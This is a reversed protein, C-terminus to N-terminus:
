TRKKYDLFTRNSEKKPDFHFVGFFFQVLYGSVTITFITGVGFTGGLLFGILLVTFEIAPKVYKVDIKTIRSLGVFLGDRPGPGLKTSIYLARGMTMLLVGTLILLIRFALDDTEIIIYQNMKDIIFGVLLINLLTGPGIKTKLLVVSLVLIILGVIQITVGFSIGSTKSIGEHFINWSSLGLMSLRNFTIGLCMLFFGVILVGLKSFDKKILEYDM